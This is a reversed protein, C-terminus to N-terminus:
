INSDHIIYIYTHTYIYTYIYIYIYTYIYIDGKRSNAKVPKIKNAVTSTSETAIAATENVNIM